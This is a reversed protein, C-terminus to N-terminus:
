MATGSGELRALYFKIIADPIDDIEGRIDRIDVTLLTVWVGDQLQYLNFLDAAPNRSEALRGVALMDDKLAISTIPAGSLSQMWEWDNEPSEQYFLHVWEQDRKSEAVAMWREEMALYAGFYGLSSPEPATLVQGDNLRVEGHNWPAEGAAPVGSAIVSTGVALAQGYAANHTRRTRPAEISIPMGGVWLEGDTTGVYLRNDLSVLSCASAPLNEFPFENWTNLDRSRELRGDSTLIRVHDRDAIFDIANRVFSASSGDFTRLTPEGGSRGLEIYCLMNAFTTYAGVRVDLGTVAVPCDFNCGNPDHVTGPTFAKGQFPIIARFRGASPDFDPSIHLPQWSVGQDASSMTLITGQRGGDVVIGGSGASVIRGNFAILDHNHLTGQRDNRKWLGDRTRVAYDAQNFFHAPDSAPVYFENGIVKFREILETGLLFESVFEHLVPDYYGVETPGLNEEISGYGLYLRGQYV